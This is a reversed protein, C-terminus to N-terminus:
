VSEKRNGKNAHLSTNINIALQWRQKWRKGHRIILLVKYMFRIVTSPILFLFSFIFSFLLADFFKASSFFLKLCGFYSSYNFFGFGKLIIMDKIFMKKLGKDLKVLLPAYYNNMYKSSLLLRYLKKHRKYTCVFKDEISFKYSPLESCIIIKNLAIANIHPYKLFMLCYLPVHINATGIGEEIETKDEELIRKVLESNWIL